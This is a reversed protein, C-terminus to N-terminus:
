YEVLEIEYTSDQKLEKPEKQYESLDINSLWSKKFGSWSNDVCIKLVTNVDLGSKEVQSMFGNLATETNAANKGKRVVLWDSVLKTDAGFEELKKKFVFKVPKDQTHINPEQNKTRPQQNGKTESEDQNGDLVVQTKEPNELNSNKKPRGGKSGNIRNRESNGQYIAIEQDCRKNHFGDEEETFFDNLVVMVADREEQTIARLRRFVVQTEKPLPKENLYYFDLARRYFCEELSNLHITDRMFDGIHHM